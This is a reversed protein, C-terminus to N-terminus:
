CLEPITFPSGSTGSTFLWGWAGYSPNNVYWGTGFDPFQAYVANGTLIQYNQMEVGTWPSTSNNVIYVSATVMNGSFVTSGSQFVGALGSINQGAHPPSVDISKITLNNTDANYSLQYVAIATKAGNQRVPHNQVSGCGAIITIMIIIYVIKQQVNLSRQWNDAVSYNALGIFM